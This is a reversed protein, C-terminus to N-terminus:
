LIHNLLIVYLPIFGVITNVAFRLYEINNIKIGCVDCTPMPCPASDIQSPRNTYLLMIAFAVFIAEVIFIVFAVNEYQTGAILDYLTFTGESNLLGAFIGREIEDQDYIWYYLLVQSFFLAAFGGTELLINQKFNKSNYVCFMAFLPATYVYWYPFAPFSVFLILMTAFPAYMFYNLREQETTIQKLYFYLFLVGMTLVIIPVNGSTLSLRNGFLRSMMESSFNAKAEMASTSSAFLLNTVSIPLVVVLCSAALKFFNKQTLVLLALFIFFPFQKCTVAIAFFLLFQWNKKNLWARMGLLTFTIGVIDCQGAYGIASMVTVSSLFLFVSKKARTADQLVQMMIQYVLYASVAFAALFFCKGYLLTWPNSGVAVGAFQKLLFLPIGWVGFMCNLFVDYVPVYYGVSIADTYTYNYFEMFRGTLTLEAMNIQYQVISYTDYYCFITFPILLAIIAAAFMMNETSIHLQKGFKKNM